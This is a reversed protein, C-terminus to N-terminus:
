TAHHTNWTRHLDICANLCYEPKMESIQSASINIYNVLLIQLIFRQLSNLHRSTHPATLHFRTLLWFMNFFM